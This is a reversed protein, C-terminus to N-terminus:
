ASEGAAAVACVRSTADALQAVLADMVCTVSREATMMGVIQGVPTGLAAAVGHEIASITADRVLMQQLPAPLPAPAGPEDWAAVWPTRLQRVPKGTRCKSRVTDRSHAALLRQKLVPHVDSEATTLWISGTWVGAAGLALAAAIQRGDGIGGAALVPRPSVADVIQPVLVMTTIEGAHGGAESGQAVIIDTGAQIHRGVHEPAGVLGSTLIGAEHAEAQVDAPAPGLASALLGVNHRRAIEWQERSRVHGRVTSGADLSTRPPISFRRELGRVFEIHEPPIMATLAAADDGEYSVPFVLDVGYSRSGCHSDLWTLEQDLQDPSYGAAGLVGFGGSRTVAAVVDRCHSFAAIPYEAGVLGCFNAPM